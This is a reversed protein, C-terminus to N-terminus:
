TEANGVHSTYGVNGITAAAISVQQQGSCSTSQLNQTYYTATISYFSKM